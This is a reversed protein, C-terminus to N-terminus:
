TICSLCLSAAHADTCNELTLALAPAQPVEAATHQHDRDHHDTDAVARARFRLAACIARCPDGILV